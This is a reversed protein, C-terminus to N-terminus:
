KWEEIRLLQKFFDKIKIPLIDRIITRSAIFAFFYSLWRFRLYSLDDTYKLFLYREMRKKRLKEGKRYIKKRQAISLTPTFFSPENFMGYNTNLYEEPSRVLYNNKEVWDYLETKPIPTLHFFWVNARPYKRALRFSDEIDNITEGPSGILFFLTLHFGLEHIDKIAKEIVEITEGKKLNKLIKNNGGEVGIDFSRFGVEKMRNLIQRDVTDARVGECGLTIKLNRKEIEDCLDYIRKKDMLFNSDIFSFERFGKEYWYEIESIVNLASRARWKRGQSMFAGCFICKYPCGRSSAIHMTKSYKDKEFGAYTPFPITDLDRIFDRDGTYRITSGERYLLGKIQQPNQNKCLEVITEEGELVVGYDIAACDELVKERLFSVHPGGAIISIKPFTSKIKILLEYHQKYNCSMLSIGILEPQFHKIKDELFSYDHWRLDVVKYKVGAQRLSEAIYGLGVPWATISFPSGPYSPQILLIRKM